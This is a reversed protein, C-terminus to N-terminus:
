GEEAGKRTAIGRLYRMETPASPATKRQCRGLAYYAPPLARAFVNVRRAASAQAGACSRAARRPVRLRARGYRDVDLMSKEGWEETV